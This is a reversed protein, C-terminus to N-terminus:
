ILFLFKMYFMKRIERDNCYTMIAKYSTFQLTFCYGKEYGKEKSCNKAIEKLIDPFEVLKSNDTINYNFANTDKVLNSEYESILKTLQQKIEKVRTKDAENSILMGNELFKRMHHKQVMEDEKSNFVKISSILEYLQTNTYIFSEFENILNNIIETNLNEEDLSNIRRKNNYIIKLQEFLDSTKEFTHLNFSEKNLAMNNFEEKAKNIAYEFAPLYDENKIKDYPIIDYDLIHLLINDKNVNQNSTM